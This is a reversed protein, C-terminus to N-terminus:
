SAEYEPVRSRSCSVAGAVDSLGRSVTTTVEMDFPAPEPMLALLDVGIQTQTDTRIFWGAGIM